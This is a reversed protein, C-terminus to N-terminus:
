EKKEAAQLVPELFRSPMDRGDKKVCYLIQLEKKARTMAVYLMRREEELSQAAAQRTPMKGENIDPLYVTDFELGKSAHMTMLQIGSPANEAEKGAKRKEAERDGEAKKRRFLEECQSIYDNLEQFTQYRRALKQFDDAIQFLKDRAGADYNQKLYEDYGVAQRIYHIALYPRMNGIRALDGFLKKASEQMDPRDKYYSLLGQLTVPNKVACDKRFYRLPRNMFLHFIERSRNGNAFELYALIDKIVFHDYPSRLSEKMTFPIGNILLKEALLGCEYNTRYIVAKGTLSAAGDKQLTEKWDKLLADYEEEQCLFPRLAMGAGKAHAACIKKEFRNKNQCIVQLSSEVIQEHCRYNVDLLLQQAKPYDELFQKMIDPRAGRFGYISQDDDGVIFLNDEPAAIQRIIRYQMPNIDQFEDILIYRYSKQWTTLIDPNKQFLELCLLGMDDFDIKKWEIMFQKYNEYIELFEERTFLGPSFSEMSEGDNKMRSILTLLADIKEHGTFLLSSPMKLLHLLLKRKETETILTFQRYQATQRLIHYFIAHFTGFNVPPRTGAMLKYFRQKMENAAAKTFTIVLIDSPEVGHQEILYRIRQTIVFTKGSGPGALVQMSGAAFKIAKEQIPNMMLESMKYNRSEKELGTM